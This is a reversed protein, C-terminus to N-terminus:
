ISSYIFLNFSIFYLIAGGSPIAVIGRDLKDTVRQAQATGATMLGLLSLLMIKKKM